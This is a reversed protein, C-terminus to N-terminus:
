DKGEPENHSVGERMAYLAIGIAVIGCVSFGIGIGCAILWVAETM